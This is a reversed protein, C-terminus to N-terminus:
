TPNLTQPKPNLYVIDKLWLTIMPSGRPAELIGWPDLYGVVMHKELVQVLIGIELTGLVRKNPM